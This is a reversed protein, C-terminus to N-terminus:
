NLACLSQKLDTLERSRKGTQRLPLRIKFTTGGNGDCDCEISGHHKEVVISHSISLGLGTGKGVDKTTFFPNFIRDRISEPIGPGNDHIRIEVMDADCQTAISITPKWLPMEQGDVLQQQIARELNQRSYDELADISNALLNMIVQNLQSPYCDIPGMSGYNKEIVIEPSSQKFRHNLILLTNDIGEHIDAIKLASEDLRSFNRLGLIIERIRDTGIKMSNLLKPLDKELFELDIDDAHDELEAETAKERHLQLHALLDEIYRTAPTLNGHIFSVPNNIEHAVGAIMQGLGSMKESQILQGQALKLDNLTTTLAQTRDAVQSELTENQLNLQAFSAQLEQAMQGFSRSLVGVEDIRNNDLKVDFDGVALKETAGLLKQLPQNVQKFLIFYIFVIELCVACLSLLLLPMIDRWAQDYILKKPYLTTLYWDTGALGTIAIFHSQDPSSTIAIETKLQKAQQWIHMLKPNNLQEITLQGNAKQIAGTQDRDVILRGSQTIILNRTGPLTDNQTRDLLDTLMIDHGISAIHNGKEDDVPTVLSVMWQQPAPDFYVGTWRASRDPNKDKHAIYGYEEQNIDLTAPAQLAWPTRHWYNASVNAASDIWLNTFNTHWAPGYAQNIRHFVLIDQKLSQSLTVNRGVFVTSNRKADFQAIPRSQDFSRYTGDNWPKMLADFAIEPNIAREKKLEELLVSKLHTHNKQAQQFIQSERKGRELVYNELQEIAHKELTSLANRYGILTAVCSIGVIPLGLSLMSKHLISRRIISPIHKTLHHM